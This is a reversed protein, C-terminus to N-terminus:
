SADAVEERFWSPWLDRDTGMEGILDFESSALRRREIRSRRHPHGENRVYAFTPDLRTIFVVGRQPFRRERFGMRVRLEMQEPPM